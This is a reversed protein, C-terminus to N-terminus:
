GKGSNYLMVKDWVRMGKMTESHDKKGQELQQRRKGKEM